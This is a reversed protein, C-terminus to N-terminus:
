CFLEAVKMTWDPVVDGVDLVDNEHFIRINHQSRYKRVTRTQPDVVIVIRVGSKLWDLAKDEVQAFSDNPSVVEGVLDPALPLFGRHDRFNDLRSKCVFAVDPARVTDPDRSLLFGTEAAFTDGLDHKEVHVGLRILLRSAIRGHQSGSPSMVRLEGSVLERRNGDNPLKSLQHATTQHTLESM